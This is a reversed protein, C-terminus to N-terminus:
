GNITRRDYIKRVKYYFNNYDDINNMNVEKDILACKKYNDDDSVYKSLDNAVNVSYVNFRQDKSLIDIKINSAEQMIYDTCIAKGEIETGYGSIMIGYKNGFLIQISDNNKVLSKISKAEQEASMNENVPEYIEIKYAVDVIPDKIIARIERTMKETEIIGNYEGYIHDNFNCNIINIDKINKFEDEADWYKSTLKKGTTSEGEYPTTFTCDVIDATFRRKLSEFVLTINNNDMSAMNEYICALDDASPYIIEVESFTDKPKEEKKYKRYASYNQCSVCYKSGEDKNYWDVCTLCTRNDKPTEEKPTNIAKNDIQEHTESNISEHIKADIYKDINIKEANDIIDIFKDWWGYRNGLAKKVFCMALGKEPDYVEEATNWKCITKTDDNWMVITAKGNFIVKKIEFKTNYRKTLADITLDITSKKEEKKSMKKEKHYVEGHYTLDPTMGLEHLHIPITHRDDYNYTDLINPLENKTCYLFFVVYDKGNCRNIMEKDIGRHLTKSLQGDDSFNIYIFYDPDLHSHVFSYGYTDMPKEEINIQDSNIKSILGYVSNNTTQASKYLGIKYETGTKIEYLVQKLREKYNKCNCEFKAKIMNTNSEKKEKEVNETNCLEISFTHSKIIESLDIDFPFHPVQGPYEPELKYPCFYLFFQNTEVDPYKHIFDLISKNFKGIDIIIHVKGRTISISDNDISIQNYDLESVLHGYKGYDKKNRSTDKYFAIPLDKEKQVKIYAKLIHIYEAKFTLKIKEM